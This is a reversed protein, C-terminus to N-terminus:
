DDSLSTLNNIIIIIVTVRTDCWGIKNSSISTNTNNIVSHRLEVVDMFAILLEHGSGFLSM